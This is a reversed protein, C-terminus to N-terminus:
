KISGSILVYEWRKLKEKLEKKNKAVFDFDNNYGYYSNGRKEIYTLGEQGDYIAIEKNTM